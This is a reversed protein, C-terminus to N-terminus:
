AVLFDVVSFHLILSVASGDDGDGGKGKKSRSGKGGKSIKPKIEVGEPMKQLESVVATTRGGVEIFTITAPSGDPQAADAYGNQTSVSNLIHPPICSVLAMFDKSKPVVKEGKVEALEEEEEETESMGDAADSGDEDKVSKEKIKGDEKAKLVRKEQKKGKGWRWRFLWNDPFKGHM